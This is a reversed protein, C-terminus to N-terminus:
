GIMATATLYAVYALCLVAGLTRGIRLKFVRVAVLFLTAAAMVWMDFRIIHDTVPVTAIVTTIGMIAAINFINSGIVNGIAVSTSGQRAAGIGTALEPLSTGLAVITLGIVEDSVSWARAIEVAADVTLKAGLPLLALGVLLFAVLKWNESPLDGIDEGTDVTATGRSARWAQQALFAALVLLLLFGDFRDLTGESMEWMFLATVGVLFLMAPGTREKPPIIPAILAPVGLVLLVNTINSGVVNGVAIGGAGILAADLSIVLEPASTGFAVITMGVILAPVNMKRALGAAGKVLWEGGFLLIVLGLPLLLYPLM